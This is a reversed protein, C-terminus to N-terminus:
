SGGEGGQSDANLYKWSRDEVTDVDVVLTIADGFKTTSGVVMFTTVIGGELEDFRRRLIRVRDM